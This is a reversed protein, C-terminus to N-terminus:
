HRVDSKEKIVAVVEVEAGLARALKGVMEEIWNYDYSKLIPDEINPKEGRAVFQDDVFVEITSGSYELDYWIEIRVKAM